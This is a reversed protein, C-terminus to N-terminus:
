FYENGQTDLFGWKNKIQVEALGNKFPGVNDYKTPIVLEQKRNMFGWKNGLRVPALGESFNWVWDFNKIKKTKM